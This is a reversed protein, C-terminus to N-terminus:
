TRKVNRAKLRISARHTYKDFREICLRGIVLKYSCKKILRMGEDFDIDEIEDWDDDNNFSFVNSEFLGDIFAKVQFSYKHEVRYEDNLDKEFYLMTDVVGNVVVTKMCMRFPLDDISQSCEKSENSDVSHLDFEFQQFYHVYDDFVDFQGYEYKEIGNLATDFLHWDMSEYKRIIHGINAEIPNFAWEDKDHMARYEDDFHKELDGIWSRYEMGDGIINKKRKQEAYKIDFSMSMDGFHYNVCLEYNRENQIHIVKCKQIADILVIDEDAMMRRRKPKAAQKNGGMKPIQGSASMHQVKRHLLDAIWEYTNAEREHKQKLKELSHRLQADKRERPM